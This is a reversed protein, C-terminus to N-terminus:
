WSYSDKPDFTKYPEPPKPELRPTRTIRYSDYAKTTARDPTGHGPIGKQTGPEPVPPLGLSNEVWDKTYPTAFIPNKLYHWVKWEGDEKVFDISTKWWIWLAQPKPDEEHTKGVAMLSTWQGRATQGDGAVEIVPTGLLETELMGAHDSAFKVNPFIKKMGAAHSKEFSKEVDVLARRAGDIGEFVGRAGIEVTVGPTKRAIFDLRKEYMGAEYLYALKGVINQIDRVDQDRQLLATLRDVKQELTEAPQKSMAAEATTAAGAQLLVPLGVAAGILERKKRDM